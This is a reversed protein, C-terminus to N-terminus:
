DKRSGYPGKEIRILRGGSFTLIRIFKRPGFDYVWIESKQTRERYSGDYDFPDLDSYRGDEWYTGSTTSGIVDRYFPEGCNMLVEAATDGVNIIKRNCRFSSDAWSIGSLGFHFLIVYFGIARLKQM